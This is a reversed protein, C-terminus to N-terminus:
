RFPRVKATGRRHPKGARDKFRLAHPHMGQDAAFVSPAVAAAALGTLFTRRPISTM